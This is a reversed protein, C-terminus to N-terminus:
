ETKRSDAENLREKYFKAVTADTRIGTVTCINNIVDLLERRNPARMRSKLVEIDRMIHESHLLKSATVMDTGLATRFEKIEKPTPPNPRRAM